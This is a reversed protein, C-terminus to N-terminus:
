ASRRGLRYVYALIEAVANYLDAPIEQGIEVERYLARAVEKREVIPIGHVAAIQRIRMAMYDAGKAVVKPARMNEPDYRLAVAFHTPNTVIVDAQPVASQIRQLALQRAVRNRRQKIMPDGEMRKMEDKVDQKTMKMDETHQYRQYALDLLALLMLLIALKVALWFVMEAAIFFSARVPLESLTVIKPLEEHIIWTGLGLILVMKGLSMAFRVWARPGVINKLGNYPNLKNFSPTIPKVTLLLGVQSINVIVGFLTLLLLTPALTYLLVRGAYDTMGILDEVRTINAAHASELYTSMALKLGTAIQMGFLWLAVIGVLLLVAANLDTSKAVNGDKRAEQLRRPTPAETKEGAPQEAM